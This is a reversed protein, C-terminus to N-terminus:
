WVEYWNVGQMYDVATASTLLTGNVTVNHMMVQGVTTGNATIILKKGAPLTIDCNHLVITNDAEAVILDGNINATVDELAVTSYTRKITVKADGTLTSNQLVLFDTAGPEFLEGNYGTGESNAIIETAALVSVSGNNVIIGSNTPYTTHKYGSLFNDFTTKETNEISNMDLTVTADEAIVVNLNSQIAIGTIAGVGNENKGADVYTVTNTGELVCNTLTTGEACAAFTGAQNGSATVNKLILDNVKVAGAYGFFSNSVNSITHGNGNLTLFMVNWPTWAQGALDIDAMLDLTVTNAENSHNQGSFYETATAFDSPNMLYYVSKHAKDNGNYLLGSEAHLVMDEVGEIDPVVTYITKSENNKVVYGEAVYNTPNLKGGNDLRFLGGYVTLVHTSSAHFSQGDYSVTFDGGYIDTTTTPGNFRWGGYFTGNNIILKGNGEYTFQYPAFSDIAKTTDVNNFNGGNITVVAKDAVNIMANNTGGITADFTGGNITAVTNEAKLIHQYTNTSWNSSATYVGGNITVKGAKSRIGGLGNFTAAEVTLTGENEVIYGLRNELTGEGKITLTGLNKILYTPDDSRTTVPTYNIENGNLDIVMEVGPEVVLPEGLVVDDSLTVTGGVQAALGLQDAGVAPLDPINFGPKIEVTYDANSTLLNGIINTRYNKKLPVNNVTNNVTGNVTQIEYYVDINGQPVLVYNMAVLDYTGNVKQGAPVSFKTFDVEVANGVTSATAVNYAVPVTVKVRSEEPTLLYGATTSVLTAINLQAFPRTLTVTKSQAGDHQSIQDIGCYADRDDCNAVVQIGDKTEDADKVQVNRLDDVNFYSEGKKNAWFLVTYDQDNLLDLTLEYTNGTMTVKKEFLTSATQLETADITKYVEYYLDYEAYGSEGRTQVTEPLTITYTVGGQAVPEHMERQCSAAFLAAVLATACYILKKM